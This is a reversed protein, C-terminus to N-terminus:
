VQIALPMVLYIYDKGDRLVCPSSRDKLELVLSPSKIAKLADVFLVPNFVVEFEDGHYKVPIEVKSEGVDQVRSLLIIKDDQFTMKTARAEQTTMLAARRMASELKDRDVTAQKDGTKPIVQEYDPFSGEVLRSFIIAHRTKIRIQSETVNLQVEEDADGLVKELLHMAKPPVIVKIDGKTKGSTKKRIFALRKGDTAVMRVEEGRIEVQIGTLAYRTVEVAVAFATKAIMERLDPSSLSQAALPNFEPFEPFDTPDMGVVKYYGDSLTISALTRDSEIVVHEDKSERLISAVTDAPVVLAGPDGVEVGEIVYRVGIELDTALLSVTKGEAVLKVNQLVAIGSRGSPLASSVTQFAHLLEKRDVRIRM